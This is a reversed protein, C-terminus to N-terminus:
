HVFFDLQGRVSAWPRDFLSACLHREGKRAREGSDGRENRNREHRLRIEFRGLLPRRDDSFANTQKSAFQSDLRIGSVPSAELDRHRQGM